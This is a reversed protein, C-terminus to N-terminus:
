FRSPASRTAEDIMKKQRSSMKDNGSFPDKAPSIRWFVFLFLWIPLCTYMTNLASETALGTRPFMHVSNSLVIYFNKCIFLWMATCGLAYMKRKLYM